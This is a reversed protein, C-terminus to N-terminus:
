KQGFDKALLDRAEVQNQEQEPGYLPDPCLKLLNELQVRAEDKRGLALLSQALYLMTLSGKPCKKLSDQLLAVSEKKNGGLLPPVEYDVRALTRQAGCQNYNPDIKEVTQMEQRIRDVYRLAQFLNQEQAYLGYDAGLWFHGEPRAPALAAAKKGADIGEELEKLEVPGDDHRALYSDFEAIRWWAEYDQPNRAVEQHLLALGKVVNGINWRGQYYDDAQIVLSALTQGGDAATAAAAPAVLALLLLPAIARCAPWKPKCSFKEIAV